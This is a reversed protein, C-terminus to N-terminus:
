ENWRPGGSLVLKASGNGSITTPNAFEMDMSITNTPSRTTNNTIKPNNAADAVLSVPMGALNFGVLRM